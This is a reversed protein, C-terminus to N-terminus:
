ALHKNREFTAAAATVAALEGLADVRKGIAADDFRVNTVTTFLGDIIAADTQADHPKGEAACALEVM